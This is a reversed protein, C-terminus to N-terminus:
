IMETVFDTIDNILQKDAESSEPDTRMTRCVFINQKVAIRAESSRLQVGLNFSKSWDTERTDEEHEKLM